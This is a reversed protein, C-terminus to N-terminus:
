KLRREKEFVAARGITGGEPLVFSYNKFKDKPTTSPIALSNSM